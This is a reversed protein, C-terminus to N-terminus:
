SVSSQYKPVFVVSFILTDWLDSYLYIYEQVMVAALIHLQLTHFYIQVYM